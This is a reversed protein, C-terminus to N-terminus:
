STPRPVAAGPIRALEALLLGAWGFINHERVHARMRSMRSRRDEPDMTVARYIADSMDEVDYPNVLLADRLEHSAGTFRSLILVGDDDEQAAVYEKAVLNMGDHLSTVMCFDAHRYYRQIERHDHHRERYVIPQWGRDGLDTNIARVIERTQEALEQYRPIRIRSPSAIQVFVVRRRFEPWREFFRRIARFREPLGKTYDVREVGVGIFEATVGLEGLLQERTVPMPDDLIDTAVSIPFPRVHTTRQGRVVTFRDWEVRGEITREVTELFNNCYFQTHFGILDAGLMGLLIDEQWPCIGFAEFNPWPIHWFLAIRADPRAEKVLRPLLAFHYDQVLVIPEDAKEMEEVLARAFRENVIQYQQWDDARFRPREHVIHCLPWLGENALGYYYGAEEEESLWVRRLTYAPDASPLGIREGVLRDANGSGHAVWVGGCAAMIPQLATVLGSAPELERVGRGDRVHSVPERNSVVFVPRHGFRAEVFQKLREETWLSEGALRLRAEQEAATRVRALTRALSTVETALPGFLSADADPPPAVPQGAKLQKTWEAIRAMPRTVSWRVAAWTIGTVLLMLVGIRVATRRWLNWDAADLYQADLLVATAGVIREDHQLPLVHVWTLRGAVPQFRAVQENKEIAATVLPSIPGLFPRVESTAVLVSGFADFIAIPRDPRAFRALVRDLAPKNAGRAVLSESAQAVSYGILAARRKLDEVLRGREERVELYAFGASVLLTALWIGGLLRVLFRM